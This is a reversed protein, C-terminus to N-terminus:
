SLYHRFVNTLSPRRVWFRPALHIQKSAFSGNLDKHIHQLKFYIIFEIFKNLKLSTSKTRIFIEIFANFAYFIVFFISFQIFHISLRYIYSKAKVSSFSHPWINSFLCYNYFLFFNSYEIYFIYQYLSGLIRAGHTSRIVAERGQTKRKPQLAALSNGRM